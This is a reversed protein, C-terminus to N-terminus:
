HGMISSAAEVFNRCNGKKVCHGLLNGVQENGVSLYYHLHLQKLSEFRCRVREIAGLTQQLTHQVEEYYSLPYLEQDELDTGRKPVFPNISLFLEARTEGFRRVTERALRAVADIDEEGEGPLGYMFYYRFRRIGHDLGTSVAHLLQEDSLGKGIRRRLTDTGTEPAFTVTRQGNQKLLDAIEDDFDDARLSSFSVTLGRDNMERVRPALDRHDTLVPAVLGVRDTLEEAHDLIERVDAPAVTRLPNNVCRTMCFRCTNRCGRGIEILVRDSFETNRTLIVSHAPEVIRKLLARPVPDAGHVAPVYLGPLEAIRDLLGRERRFQHELMREVLASLSMEMDGRCIADAFPSLVLPNATVTIGGVVVLPDGKDRENRLLPIAAEKLMHLIYRYDLEFSVSFFLVDNGRLGQPGRLDPSFLTHGQEVFYRHVQLGHFLALRHYLSQFGLNSM